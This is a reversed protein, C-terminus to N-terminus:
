ASKESGTRLWHLFAESGGRQALAEKVRFKMQEALKRTKAAADSDKQVTKTNEM